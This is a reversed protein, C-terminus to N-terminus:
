DVATYQAEIVDLIRRGCFINHTKIEFVKQFSKENDQGTVSGFLNM